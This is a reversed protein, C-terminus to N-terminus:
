FTSGTAGSESLMAQQEAFVADLYSNGVEPHDLQTIVSTGATVRYAIDSWHTM